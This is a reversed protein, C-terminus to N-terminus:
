TVIESPESTFSGGGRNAAIVRWYLTQGEPLGHMYASTDLIGARDYLLNSFDARDSVQLTYMCARASAEWRFLTRATCKAGPEPSLLGFASPEPASEHYALIRAADGTSVAGRFVATQYGTRWIADGFPSLDYILLILANDQTGGGDINYTLLPEDPAGRVMSKYIGAFARLDKESFTLGNAQGMIAARVDWMGHSYDEASGPSDHRFYADTYNWTIINGNGDLELKQHFADLMRNARNLYEAEHEPSLRALQLMAEAMALFQNNPLSLKETSGGFNSSGPRNMYLGLKENWDREFAPIMERTAEGVLYDCLADYTLGSTPETKGLLGPTSQVLNAWEGMASLLTGTHVCYEEYVGDSYTDTGWNKCGDGDNDAALQFIEYLYGGPQELYVEDGTAQYARCYANLLYSSGWALTSSNASVVSASLDGTLYERTYDQWQAYDDPAAQTYMPPSEPFQPALRYRPIHILSGLFAGLAAACALAVSIAARAGKRWDKWVGRLALIFLALIQAACLPLAVMSAQRAMAEHGIINNIIYSVGCLSVGTFAAMSLATKWLLTIPKREGRVLLAFLTLAAIGLTLVVLTYPFVKPQWNVYADYYWSLAASLALTLLPPLALYLGKHPKLSDSM